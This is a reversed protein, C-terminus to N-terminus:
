KRAEEWADLAAQRHWHTSRLATALRDALAREAFLADNTREWRLTMEDLNCEARAAMEIACDWKNKLGIIENQADNLETALGLNATRLVEVDKPLMGDPLGQALTDAYERAEDREKRAQDLIDVHKAFMTDAMEQAEDRERQLKKAHDWITGNPDMMECGLDKNQQIYKAKWEDRERRHQIAMTQWHSNDPENDRELWAKTNAELRALETELNATSETEPAPAENM